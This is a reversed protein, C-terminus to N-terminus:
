RNREIIEVGTEEKIADVIERLDFEKKNIADYMDLFAEHFKLLRQKGFDFEDRLILMPVTMSYSTAEQIAKQYRQRVYGQLREYTCNYTPTKKM